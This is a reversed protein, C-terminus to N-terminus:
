QLAGARELASGVDQALAQFSKGSASGAAVLVIETGPKLQAIM